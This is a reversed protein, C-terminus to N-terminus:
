PLKDPAEPTKPPEKVKDEEEFLISWGQRELDDFQDNKVSWIFSWLAFTVLGLSLPILVFLIEM